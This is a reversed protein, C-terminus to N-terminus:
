DERPGSLVDRYVNADPPVEYQFRANPISRNTRVSRFEITWRDGSRYEGVISRILKDKGVAVEITEFKEEPVQRELILRVVQQGSGDGLPVPDPGLEYSIAYNARLFGLGIMPTLDTPLSANAGPALEDLRQEIILNFEPLYVTLLESDSVM